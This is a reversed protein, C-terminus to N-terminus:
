SRQRRRRRWYSGSGSSRAPGISSAWRGERQAAVNPGAAMGSHGAGEEAEGVLWKGQGRQGRHGGVQGVAGAAEPQWSEQLLAALQQGCSVLLAAASTHSPFPEAPPLSTPHKILIILINIVNLQMPKHLSNVFIM